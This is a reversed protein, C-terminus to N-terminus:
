LIKKVKLYDGAREPAANLLEQTHEGSPIVNRDERWVNTPLYNDVAPDVEDLKAEKLESIYGLISELDQALKQKESAPVDLRALRALQDVDEPTIM